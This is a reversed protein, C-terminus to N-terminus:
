GFRFCTLNGPWNSTNFTGADQKVKFYITTTTNQVLLRYNWVGVSAVNWTGGFDASQVNLGAVHDTTTNGSNTSIAVTMTAQGSVRTNQVAGSTIYYGPSVNSISGANGFQNNTPTTATTLWSAIVVDSVSIIQWNAGDSAVTMHGYAAYLTQTGPVGGINESAFPAILVFGSGANDLKNIFIQRGANISPSPLTITRNSNGTTVIIKDFGDTNLIAYNASSVAKTTTKIIPTFSTVTGPYDAGSLVPILGGGVIFGPTTGSSALKAGAAANAASSCLNFTNADIRFVYYTLSATFGNQSVPLYVKDGTAFGHATVTFVGPTANTVTYAQVSTSALVGGLLDTHVPQPSSNSDGITLCFQALTAPATLRWFSTSTVANNTNDNALSVYLNGTGDNVISGIYYTTGSDWEGVGAQLVYALQYAYLYCIANMDEIAPSNGALVANFWGVLYNSLSQITAINTTFTPAGANLSGFQAIQEFGANSGFIKQTQRTIKAM